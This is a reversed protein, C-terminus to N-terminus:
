FVQVGGRYIQMWALMRATVTDDRMGAPAGYRIVGSPTIDFGFAKMENRAIGNDLFRPEEREMAVSLTQVYQSKVYQNFKVPTLSVRKNRLQEGVFEGGMSTADVKGTPKNYKRWLHDVRALQNDFPVGLMYELFVESKTKVKWISVVSADRKAAPDWGMVYQADKQADEPSETHLQDVHRFVASDGEVDKAEYEREYHTMGGPLTGDEAMKRIMGVWKQIEPKPNSITPVRLATHTRETPPLQVQREGEAFGADFWSMGGRTVWAKPTSIAWLVGDRSTLNTLISYYSELQYHAAEDIVVGDYEDGRLNWPEDGSKLQIMSEPESKLTVSWMGYADRVTVMSKPLAMILPKFYRIWTPELQKNVPATWLWRTGPQNCMRIFLGLACGATKGAKTGCKAHNLSPKPLILGGDGIGMFEAQWPYLEDEIQVPVIESLTM